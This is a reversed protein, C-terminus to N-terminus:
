RKARSTGRDKLDPVCAALLTVSKEQEAEDDLRGAADCSANTVVFWIKLAEFFVTNPM